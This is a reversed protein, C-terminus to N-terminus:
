RKETRVITGGAKEIEEVFKNYNIAHNKNHLENFKELAEESEWVYTSIRSTPTLDDSSSFLLGNSACWNFIDAMAINHELRADEIKDLGGPVEIEYTIVVM